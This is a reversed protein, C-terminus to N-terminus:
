VHSMRTCTATRKICIKSLRLEAVAATQSSARVPSICKIFTQTKNVDYIRTKFGFYFNFQFIVSYIKINYFTKIPSNRCM